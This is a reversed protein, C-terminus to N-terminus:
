SKECPKDTTSTKVKVNSCDVREDDALQIYSRPFQLRRVVLVDVKYSIHSREICIQFVRQAMTEIQTYITWTYIHHSMSQPSIRYYFPSRWQPNRTSRRLYRCFFKHTLPDQGSPHSHSPNIIIGDADQYCRIELRIWKGKGRTYQFSM